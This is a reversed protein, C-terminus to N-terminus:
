LGGEIELHIDLVRHTVKSAKQNGPVIFCSSRTNICMHRIIRRYARPPIRLARLWSIYLIQFLSKILNKISLAAKNKKWEALVWPELWGHQHRWSLSFFFFCFLVDRLRPNTPCVPISLLYHIHVFLDWTHETAPSLGCKSLFFFFNFFLESFIM